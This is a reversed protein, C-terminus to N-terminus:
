HCRSMTTDQGTHSVVGTPRTAPVQGQQLNFSTNLLYLLSQTEANRQAADGTDLPQAAQSHLCLFPVLFVVPLLFPMM